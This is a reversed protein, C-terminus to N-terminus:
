RVFHIGDPGSAIGRIATEQHFAGWYVGDGVGLGYSAAIQGRSVAAAFAGLGATVGDSSGPFNSLSSFVSVDTEIGCM